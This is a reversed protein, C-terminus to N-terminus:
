AKGTGTIFDRLLANFRDPAEISAYHGVDALCHFVADPIRDAVARAVAPPCVPDDSGCVVLAPRRVDLVSFIDTACMMKWADLYGAQPVAAMVAIAEDAVAPSAAKSLIMRGRQAAFAQPGLTKMDLARGAHIAKRQEDPLAGNGTVPQLLTMSRPDLGHDRIAAAVMIAGLSHGVLHPRAVGIARLLGALAAAYAQVTPENAGIPGSGGYGPADWAIVRFSDAFAAFQHPWSGSHGGIGHVLVLPEGSGAELYSLRRGGADITHLAPQEAV